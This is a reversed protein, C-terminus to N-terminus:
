APARSALLRGRTIMGIIPWLEFEDGAFRRAVALAAAALAELAEALRSPHARTPLLEADVAVVIDVGIRRLPEANARARRLWSRVTAAPIEWRTALRRYGQGRAAGLLVAGIVGLTYARGALLQAPLLVHTARCDRCRTRDPRVQFLETLDRVTRSRAHGWARLRGGCPCRLVGAAVAKRAAAVDLVEIM